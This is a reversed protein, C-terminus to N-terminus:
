GKSNGRLYMQVRELGEKLFQLIHDMRDQKETQNSVSHKVTTFMKHFSVVHKEHLIASKKLLLTSKDLDDM